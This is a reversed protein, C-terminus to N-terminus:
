RTWHGPHWVWAFGEWVYHGRVWFHRPSPPPPPTEVLVAPMPPVMHNIYHGGVWFWASGRWAWHGPVWAWGPHPVPPIVEVRMAPMVRENFSVTIQAEAAGIALGSLLVGTFLGFAARRTTNTM